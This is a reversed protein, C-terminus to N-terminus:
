LLKEEIIQVVEEILKEMPQDANVVVIR